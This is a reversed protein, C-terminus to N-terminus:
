RYSSFCSLRKMFNAVRFTQPADTRSLAYISITQLKIPEEGLEVAVVMLLDGIEQDKVDEM